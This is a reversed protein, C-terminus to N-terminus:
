QLFDSLFFKLENFSYDKKFKPIYYKKVGFNDCNFYLIILKGKNSNIKYIIPEVKKINTNNFYIEIGNTCTIDVNKFNSIIFKTLRKDDKMISLTTQSLM